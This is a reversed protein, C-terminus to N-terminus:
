GLPAISFLVHVPVCYIVVSGFQSADVDAPIEYNQDGINGKLSGLDVYGELDDSSEPNDHRV